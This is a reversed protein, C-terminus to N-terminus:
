QLHQYETILEPYTFDKEFFRRQKGKIMLTAPIAGSWNPDIRDIFMQQSREHLWWVENKLNRKKVFATLSRAAQTSDDVSVLLIKMKENKYKTHLTEFAPLEKLCPVCWTAWFNVIYTTDMGDAIRTNLQDLTLLPVNQCRATLNGFFLLLSILLTKM